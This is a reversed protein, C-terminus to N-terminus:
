LHVLESFEYCFWTFDPAFGPLRVEVTIGHKRMAKLAKEQKLRQAGSPLDDDDEDEAAPAKEAGAGEEVEAAESGGDDDDGDDQPTQQRPLACADAFAALPAHLRVASAGCLPSLIFASLQANRSPQQPQSERVEGDGSGGGKRKKKM